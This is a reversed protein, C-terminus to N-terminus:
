FSYYHRKYTEFEKDNLFEAKFALDQMSLLSLNAYYGALYFESDKIGLIGGLRASISGVLNIKKAISPNFYELCEIISFLEDNNRQIFLAYQNEAEIDRMPELNTEIEITTKEKTM